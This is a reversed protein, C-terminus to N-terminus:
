NLRRKLPKRRGFLLFRIVPVHTLAEAALIAVPYALVLLLVYNAWMPLSTFTVLAYAILLMLPYHIAYIEFSRQRLYSWIRGAGDMHRQGWGLLALCMLWLYANVLPNELFSPVTYQQGFFVVCVAVGVVVAVALLWNGAERLAKQAADHSFVFYGLLFVFWYIGNRFVVVYPTNLVMSSGWVLSALAILFVLGARSSVARGALTWMVDHHDIARLLLLILSAAFLEPLFWLVGVNMVYCLYYVIGRAVPDPIAALFSFAGNSLDSVWGNVWGLLFAGGFFPVLLKRCREKLFKGASRQALSYRASIGAVLFLLPMIWPYLFYEVVDLQVYGLKPRLNTVDGTGNFLYFVHFFVVALITVSRINDLYHRRAGTEPLGSGPAAPAPEPTM